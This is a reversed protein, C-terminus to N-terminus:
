NETRISWVQSHIRQHSSSAKVHCLWMLWLFCRNSESVVVISAKQVVWWWATILQFNPEERWNSVMEGTGTEGAREQQGCSQQLAEGWLPKQIGRWRAVSGCGQSLGDTSKAGPLMAGLIRPCVFEEMVIRKCDVSPFYLIIKFIFLKLRRLDSSKWLLMKFKENINASIPVQHIYLCLIVLNTQKKNKKVHNKHRLFILDLYSSM